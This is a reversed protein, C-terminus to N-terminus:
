PKNWGWGPNKPHGSLWHRLARFGRATVFVLTGLALVTGAWGDFPTPQQLYVIPLTMISGGGAIGMGVREGPIFDKRLGPMALLVIIIITLMGRLVCGIMYWLDISNM